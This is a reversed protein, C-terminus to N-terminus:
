HPGLGLQAMLATTDFYDREAAIVGDEVECWWVAPVEVTRGTAPVPEDGLDLAGTNIARLVVEMACGADEGAVEREVLGGHYAAHVREHRLDFPQTPHEGVVLSAGGRKRM